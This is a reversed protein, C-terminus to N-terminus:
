CRFLGQFIQFSGQPGLMSTFLTSKALQARQVEGFNMVPTLYWNWWPKQGSWLDPFVLWVKGGSALLSLQCSTQSGERQVVSTSKLINKSFTLFFHLSSPPCFKISLQTHDLSPVTHCPSILILCFLSLLLPVFKWLIRWFTWMAFKTNDPTVVETAWLFPEWGHQWNSIVLPGIEIVLFFIPFYAHM